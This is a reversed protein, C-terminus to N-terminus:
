CEEVFDTLDLDKLLTSFGEATPNGCIENKTAPSINNGEGDPYEIHFVPKNQSIFPQFAQCEEYQVCQENVEWELFGITNNVISAANKLGIALNLGHAEQALFSLYDIADSTTLDLGTDNDYGDVNDPDVGDCGKSAALRLRQTMIRRVNPSSTNLWWEGDWGDLPKGYDQRTFEDADARWDEYSGASFYCLAKRGEAHLSEITSVPNDFLDIDYVSVNLSTDNLPYDLVIQWSTGATPKWISTPVTENPTPSPTPTSSTSSSSQNLGVGLGVGLAIALIVLIGAFLIFWFRKTRQHPSFAM